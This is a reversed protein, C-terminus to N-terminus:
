QIYLFEKLNLVSQAVDRWVRADDVSTKHEVALSAALEEIGALEQKGPERWLAQVFVKAARQAPPLKVLNAGWQECQQIVFPNNLLALSQAPVNTVDREGRTSSPVPFDFVELFPNTANRRVELYISRRGNGDLPGKPRDGKTSGTDHAYFVDVSPGYMDARLLGSVSLITDRIAEAEMRKVPMHSLLRNGPDKSQADASATSSRQYADSLLLTRLTRKISGGDKSFAAALADLLEPHSPREGLLGFNDPTAVIGKGFIKAWLRNVGVRATLHNDPHLMEDALRLRASRTDRYDSSNLAHLFRQPVPEGPQKHNGRILLPQPPGGEELVSPARRAVPIEMELRNYDALLDPLDAKLLGAQLLVTLWAAQEDLMTNAVWADIAELTYATTKLTPRSTSAPPQKENHHAVARLAFWSRGNNEPKGTKAAPGDVLFHTVDDKTSVEIYASFGKWFETKITMWKADNENPIARLAYIGGRPVAYNEVIIQASAFNGGALKVSVYDTEIKFRPSTIVAPHKSSLLNSYVGRPEIAPVGARFAGANAIIAEGHGIWGRFDPSDVTVTDPVKAAAWDIKAAQQRFQGAAASKMKEKLASLEAKNRNLHDASDIARQTPRMNAFIGFLAYYDKQSIADFKHDHCRACSVTLGQFAKAFVDVQNDVWKIRDEWPDVPQFGHEVFRYHATGLVSENTQTSKDIRPNALLDGAIHERLLQHYSVDDNLARILYDRYRWAEPVDPDGESGHSESYRVLDMWHRAWREGFQPKALYYDVRATFDSPAHPDPPLGTLDFALRRHLVADSARPAPTLGAKAMRAYLMADIRLPAPRVPQWAWHANRRKVLDFNSDAPAALALLALPIVCRFM